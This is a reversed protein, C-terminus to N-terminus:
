DNIGPAPQDPPQAVGPPNAVDPQRVGPVQADADHEAQEAAANEPPDVRERVPVGEAVEGAPLQAVVFRGSQAVSRNPLGGPYLALMLGLVPIATPKM